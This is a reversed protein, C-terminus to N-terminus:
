AKVGKVEDFGKGFVGMVTNMTMFVNVDVRKAIRLVEIAENKRVVIILMKKAQGTYWGTCDVVTVGHAFQETIKQSVEQYKDTFIFLQASQKKGTLVFDVTFSVVGMMVYGYMLGELNFNILLSCAIIGCDSYMIMKGPSVNKYKTVIMAVIDTGGTSGGESLAIAIGIGTLMGAIISSMFRDSVFSEPILPQLFSLFASGVVIAFITKIGFKPGLVKLAIGVLLVNIVFYSVGVPIVKGSLYYIITSMGTAGGGVIKHPVLFGLAAVAYILMGFAILVYSRIEKNLNNTRM